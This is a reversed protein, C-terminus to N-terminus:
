AQMVPDPSKKRLLQYLEKATDVVELVLILVLVGTAISQFIMALNEAQAWGSALLGARDIISEGALMVSVLAIGGLSLAVAFWRTLPRQVGQRLLLANKVIGLGWLLNIFPLYGFFTLSFLPIQTWQGHRVFGISLVQPYFNFLLLAFALIVIELITELRSVRERDPKAKLKRPDFPEDKEAEKPLVRELIAFVLVINGAAAILGTFIEGLTELLMPPLNNLAVGPQSFMFGLRVLALVGLVAFVIRIVLWFLPFLQPGILYRAEQYSRAIKEPSGFEKLAEVVMEEDVPRGEQQSRNELLDEISSRIENEIDSRQKRPLEQGIEYVYSEIMEKVDM